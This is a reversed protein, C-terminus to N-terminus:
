PSSGDIKLGAQAALADLAQRQAADPYAKRAADYASQAKAMDGLVVESRVLRTWEDLSGGQKGLRDALSDVMARIAPSQQAAADPAPGPAPNGAPAKGDRAAEAAALGAKATAMWPSTDDGLAIVENWRDVAEGYHGDRMAEAALYFRSRVHRPDLAAAKRLLDGAEGTAKGGNQMMLAEALDTEMDATPPSLELIRRFAHAAKAYDGSNMYVPAIVSWGKLDDPHAALRAEVAKVADELKMDQGAADARSALPQAPLNPSGLLAYTAFALVAVGVVSAPLLLGARAPRPAAAADERRARVLERALEARAAEAEAPALRGAAVAEEIEGLRLRFHRTTADAAPTRENVPRAAAAYLLAACVIVTLVIALLWFLM